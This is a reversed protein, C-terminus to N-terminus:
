VCECDYYEVIRGVKTVTDDRSAGNIGYAAYMIGMGVGAGMCSGVLLESAVQLAAQGSGISFLLNLYCLLLAMAPTFVVPDVSLALWPQEPSTTAMILFTATAM